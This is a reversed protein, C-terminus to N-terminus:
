TNVKGGIAMSRYHIHSHSSINFPVSPLSNKLENWKRSIEEMQRCAAANSGGDVGVNRLGM